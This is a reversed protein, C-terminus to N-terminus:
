AHVVGFNIMKVVLNDTADAIGLLTVYDGTGLDASPKIGGATDSVFYLEGVTLTVGLDIDGADRYVVIQGAAADCVAIGVSTAAALSADADALKAVNSATADLYIAQGATIAVGAVANKNVGAAAPDVNAATITLDAM